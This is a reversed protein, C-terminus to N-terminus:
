PLVGRAPGAPTSVHCASCESMSRPYRDSRDHITHVRIDIANDFEIGLSAHCGYCTRQDSVGHLIRDFEAGPITQHCSTCRVTPTFGTHAAQGVQIEVVGTRNLAEGGYDRRAKIAFLYTGPAADVPITLPMVDSTPLSWLSPDQFGGFVVGAPPITAGVASYGDVSASAFTVQPGFFELPNVVGTATQLQDTPGSLVGLLNGERHKYAYYLATRAFVDLYRLGSPVAQAVFEGYSPLQGVPHLRAGAGDRFTVRFSVTEGPVYYQGNAPPSVPAVGISFGYAFPGTAQRTVPVVRSSGDATWVVRLRTTGAPVVRSSLFPRTNYRIQALGEAIFTAGTCNGVSACGLASQRAVFRRVFAADLLSLDDDRGAYATWPVGLARGQANEPVVLFASAQEMWRAHRYYRTRTFTGDLSPTWTEEVQQVGRWDLTSLEGSQTVPTIGQDTTTTVSATIDLEQLHRLTPAGYLTIPAAQGERIALSLGVSPTGLEDSTAEISADGPAADDPAGGAAGPEAACAALWVCCTGVFWRTWRDKM